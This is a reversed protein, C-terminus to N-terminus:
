LVHVLVLRRRGGREWNASSSTSTDWIWTPSPTDKSFGVPKNWINKQHLIYGGDMGRRDLSSGTVGPLLTNLPMGASGGVLGMASPSFGISTVPRPLERRSTLSTIPHGSNTFNRGGRMIPETVNNARPVPCSPLQRTGSIWNTM